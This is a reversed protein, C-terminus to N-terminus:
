SECREACYSHAADFDAHFERDEGRSFAAAGCVCSAYMSASAPITGRSFFMANERRQTLIRKRRDHRRRQKMKKSM